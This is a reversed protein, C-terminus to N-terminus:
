LIPERLSVVAREADTLSHFAERAFELRTEAGRLTDRARKVLAATAEGAEHDERAWRLATTARDYDRGAEAFADQLAEIETKTHM